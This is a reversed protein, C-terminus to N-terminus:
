SAVVSKRKRRLLLLVMLLLVVAVENRQRREPLEEAFGRHSSLRRLCRNEQLVSGLLLVMTLFSPSCLVAFIVRPTSGPAVAVFGLLDVRM